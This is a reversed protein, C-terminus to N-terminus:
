LWRKGPGDRVFHNGSIFPIRLISQTLPELRKEPIRTPPQSSVRCESLLHAYALCTVQSGVRSECWVRRAGPFYRRRIHWQVLKSLADARRPMSAKSSVVQYCFPQHSRADGERCSSKSMWSSPAMSRAVEQGMKPRRSTRCTEGGLGGVDVVDEAGSAVTNVWCM